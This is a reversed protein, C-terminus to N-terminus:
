GVAAGADHLAARLVFAAEPGVIGDLLTLLRDVFPGGHAAEAPDDALHHALEHLVVLERLAWPARLGVAGGPADAEALHREEPLALVAGVRQYHAQGQGRRAVVTVAVGARPWRDRVWGLGLVRDLYDQVSAASAFRREVPLTITSGALQVVPAQDARDFMRQVLHEAEYV